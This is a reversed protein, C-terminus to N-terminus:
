KSHSIMYELILRSNLPICIFTDLIRIIREFSIENIEYAAHQVRRTSRRAEFIILEYLNLTFLSLYIFIYININTIIDLTSMCIINICLINM